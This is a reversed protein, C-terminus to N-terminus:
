ATRFAAALSYQTREAPLRPSRRLDTAGRSREAGSSQKLWAEVAQPNLRVSRGIRAAVPLRGSRVARRITEVHVDAREAAEAATILRLEHTPDDARVTLYPRLRAALRELGDDDLAAPMARALELVLATAIDGSV